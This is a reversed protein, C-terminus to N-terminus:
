VAGMSKQMRLADQGPGYFANLTDVRRFGRRSYWDVLRKDGADVELVLRESQLGDARSEAQALLLDGIGRGRFEPDVAISYVRLTHPYLRLMMAGAVRGEQEVLWVEQSSSSLARRLVPDTERREPVFCAHELFRLAALDEPGALRLV